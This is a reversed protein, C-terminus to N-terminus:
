HVPLNRLSRRHESAHAEPVSGDNVLVEEPEAEFPVRITARGGAAVRLSLTNTLSGNRVTVPVEADTGGNNQVEVAVLWSGPAPAGGGSSAATAQEGAHRDDQQPVPEAGIPGAVPQRAQPLYNTPTSREVRRPAVTVIALDPLAHGADIWNAFCWRM